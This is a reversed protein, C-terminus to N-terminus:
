SGKVDEPAFARFRDEGPRRFLIRGCTPCEWLEGEFALSAGLSEHLADSAPTGLEPLAGGREVDSIQYTRWQHYGHADRDRDRVVVMADSPCAVNSFVYGCSCKWKAM